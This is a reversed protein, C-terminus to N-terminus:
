GEKAGATSRRRMRSLHGELAGIVASTATDAAWAIRQVGAASLAGATTPGIAVMVTRGQLKELRDRGLLELFNEVASPSYFLIGDVGEKVCDQVRARDGKTPPLTRYATVATVTAGLRKLTETLEPNARDSRPLLVSRNRVEEGLEEVLGTGSHNTAVCGVSFGAAEAAEATAPGVAAARPKVGDLSAPAGGLLRRREMVAQVANASTFLIWDFSEWRALADDVAKYDEPPGFSILPLLRVTAGRVKLEECLKESQAAARTVVV